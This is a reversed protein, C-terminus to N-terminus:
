VRQQEKVEDYVHVQQDHTLLGVNSRKDGILTNLRMGKDTNQLSAEVQYWEGDNVQVRYSNESTHEVTM